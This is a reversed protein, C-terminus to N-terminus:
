ENVVVGAPVDATVTGGMGESLYERANGRALATEGASTLFLRAGGTNQIRQGLLGAHLLAEIATISSDTQPKDRARM